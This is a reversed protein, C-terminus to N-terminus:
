FIFSYSSGRIKPINKSKNNEKLDDFSVNLEDFNKCYILNSLNSSFHGDYNRDFDFANGTYCLAKKRLIVKLLLLIWDM